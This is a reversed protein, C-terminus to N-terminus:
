VAPITIKVTTGEQEYANAEVTGNMKLLMKEPFLPDFGFEEKKDTVFPKFIKKLSQLSMAQGNNHVKIQARGGKESVRIVICPDSEGAVAESAESILDLLMQHLERPDASVWLHANPQDLVINVGKARPDAKLQQIFRELFLYINLSRISPNECLSCNRLLNLFSEMYDVEYFSKHFFEIIKNKPFDIIRKEVEELAVTKM